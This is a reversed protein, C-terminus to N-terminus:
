YCYDTSRGNGVFDPVYNGVVEYLVLL